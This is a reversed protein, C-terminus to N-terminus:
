LVKPFAISAVSPIIAKKKKRLRREASLLIFPTPKTTIPAREITTIWFTKSVVNVFARPANRKERAPSAIATRKMGTSVQM